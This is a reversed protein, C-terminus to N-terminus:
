FLNVANTKDIKNISIKSLKSFKGKLDNNSNSLNNISTKTIIGEDNEILVEFPLSITSKSIERM